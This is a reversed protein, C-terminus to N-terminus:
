KNIHKIVMAWLEKSVQVDYEDLVANYADLGEKLGEETSFCQKTAHNLEGMREIVFDDNEKYVKLTKM